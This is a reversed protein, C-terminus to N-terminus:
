PQQHLRITQEENALAWSTFFIHRAITSLKRFRIKEADDSIRHYDEHVGSFFFIAPIGKEAFNYHDSRFYFMNPDKEDNYTYDLTLGFREANVKEHLRHLDMSLRDSGIVYIYNSDSKYKEDTRGIMDVNVNVITNSLPIVPDKVYYMSGLLGKEEGTVLMCLVSRRPGLGQHKALQFARAILMVASTGSANDDAGNFVEKGRMGIHDYHATVVVVEEKKDTGEIYAMVNKGLIQNTERSQLVSIKRKILIAKTKGKFKAKDRAAIIKKISKGLLKAAVTSSLYISNAFQREKREDKELLVSPSLIDKRSADSVEKFKDEIIFVLKVGKEHAIKLKRKVDKSWDSLQSSKTIRSIGNKDVPEGNYIVIVKDRVNLNKYDSYQPDDIGYGLYLVENTELQLNENDKALCVYDWLNRYEFDDIKLVMSKWYIWKFNVKQFYDSHGPPPNLQYSRLRSSIFESARDNGPTGLERGKCSDSALYFVIEKLDNSDITEAIKSIGDLLPLPATPRIIGSFYKQQSVVLTLGCHWVVFLWFIRKM